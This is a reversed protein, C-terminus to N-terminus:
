EFVLRTLETQKEKEQRPNIVRLYYVGRPLDRIDFEIQKGNKFTNRNFVDQVNITRVINLDKESFIELVNPLVEQSATNDFEVTIKDKAPNPYVRYGSYTSFTPNRTTLGCTTSASM